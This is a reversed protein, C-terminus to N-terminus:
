IHYKCYFNEENNPHTQHVYIYIIRKRIQGILEKNKHM